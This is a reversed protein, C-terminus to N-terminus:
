RVDAHVHVAVEAHGRTRPRRTTFLARAPRLGPVRVARVHEVPLLPGRLEASKHVPVALQLRIPGLGAVRLRAHAQPATQVTRPPAAGAAGRGGGEAAVLDKQPAAVTEHAHAPGAHHVRTRRGDGALARQVAQRHLGVVFARQQPAVAQADGGQGRECRGRPAQERSPRVELFPTERCRRRIVPERQNVEPVVELGCVPGLHRERRGSGSSPQVPLDRPRGGMTKPSSSQCGRVRDM